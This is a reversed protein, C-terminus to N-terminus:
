SPTRLSRKIRHGVNQACQERSTCSSLREVYARFLRFPAARCNESNLVTNCNTLKAPYDMIKPNAINRLRISTPIVVKGVARMRVLQVPVSLTRNIFLSFKMLSQKYILVDVLNHRRNECYHKTNEQIAYQLHM